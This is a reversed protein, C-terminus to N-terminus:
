VLHHMIDWCTEKYKFALRELFTSFATWKRNLTHPSCHLVLPSSKVEVGDPYPFLNSSRQSDLFSLSCTRVEYHPILEALDTENVRVKRVAQMHGAEKLM